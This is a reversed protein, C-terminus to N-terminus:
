RQKWDNTCRTSSYVPMGALTYESILCRLEKVFGKRSKDALEDFNLEDVTEVGQSTRMNLYKKM